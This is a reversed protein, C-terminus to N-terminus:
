SAPDVQRPRSGPSTAGSGSTPRRGLVSVRPDGAGGAPAAGGEDGWGGVLGLLRGHAGHAGDHVRAPDRDAAGVDVGDDRRGVPVGLRERRRGGAAQHRQELRQRRVAQRPRGVEDGRAGRTRGAHPHDHATRPRTTSGSPVRTPACPRIGHSSTSRSRSTAASPSTTSSAGSGSRAARSAGGPGGPGADCRAAVSRGLGLRSGTSGRLRSPPRARLDAGVASGLDLGLRLSGSGLRPGLPRSGRVGLRRGLRVGLRLGHDAHRRRLGVQGQRRRVVGGAQRRHGPDGGRRRRAAAEDVGHRPAPGAAVGRSGAALRASGARRHRGSRAAGPPRGSARAERPRSARGGVPASAAVGLHRSASSGTGVPM